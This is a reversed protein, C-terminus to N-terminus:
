FAWSGGEKWGNQYFNDVTEHLGGWYVGCAGCSALQGFTFTFDYDIHWKPVLRLKKKRGLISSKADTEFM